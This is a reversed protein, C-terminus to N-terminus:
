MHRNEHTIWTLSSLWKSMQKMCFLLATDVVTPIIKTDYTFLFIPIQYFKLYTIKYIM